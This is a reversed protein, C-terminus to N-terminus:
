CKCFSKRGDEGDDYSSGTECDPFEGFHEDYSGIVDFYKSYRTRSLMKETNGCVREPRNKEFVHGDDLELKFKHEPLGGKYVAVHGYDECADELGELKWLRYTISYFSTNGIIDQIEKNNIELKRFSVVRPDIFGCRKVLRVFDKHYM